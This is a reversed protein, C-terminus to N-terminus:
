VREFLLKFHTLLHSIDINFDQRIQNHLYPLTYEAFHSVRYRKPAYNIMDYPNCSMYNESVERSWNETFRYKLLFHLMERQSKIEGWVGEFDEILDEDGYHLLNALDRETADYGGQPGGHMDRIAIYKFQNFFVQGLFTQIGELRDAYSLVEHLVSSLILCSPLEAHARLNSAVVRWDNTFSVNTLGPCMFKAINIMSPSEDYGIFFANPYLQAMERIMTGDACGFDVYLGVSDDVHELFWLKDDISRAMGQTYKSFDFIDAM